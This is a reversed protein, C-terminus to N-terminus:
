PALHGRRRSEGSMRRRDLRKVVAGLVVKLIADASLVHSGGAWTVTDVMDRVGGGQEVLGDDLDKLAQTADRDNGVQFFQIGVQHPPADAADLKKALSIIVAEPDDTPAGDTIVIMNVPKIGTEDPNGIRAARQAFDTVYPKLIANIKTGLPTAGTPRVRGFISNVEAATRINCFGYAKNTSTHRGEDNRAHLFYLDIGNADREACIPTIAGLVERVERWRSGAMSGSDDVLFVTDFSRLFAYKDEVSTISPDSRASSFSPAPSPQRPPAPANLVIAPPAGSPPAVVAYPPPPADNFAPKTEAPPAFNRSSPSPPQSTISPNPSASRSRSKRSLKDKFSGLFSM